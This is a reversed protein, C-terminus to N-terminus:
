SFDTIIGGTITITKGVLSATTITGTIGGLGNSSYSGSNQLKAGTLDDIGTGVLVPNTDAPDLQISGGSEEVQFVLDPTSGGPFGWYAVRGYSPGKPYLGWYAGYVSSNVGYHRAQEQMLNFGEYSDDPSITTFIETGLLSNFDLANVFNTKIGFTDLDLDTWAGKYPVGSSSYGSGM